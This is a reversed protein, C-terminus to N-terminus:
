SAETCHPQHRVPAPAYTTVASFKVCHEVLWNGERGGVGPLGISILLESKHCTQERLNFYMPRQRLADMHKQKYRGVFCHTQTNEKHAAQHGSSGHTWLGFGLTRADKDVASARAHSEGCNGYTKAVCACICVCARHQVRSLVPPWLSRYRSRLKSVLKTRLYMYVYICIYADLVTSGVSGSLTTESFQHATIWRWLFIGTPNTPQRTHAFM